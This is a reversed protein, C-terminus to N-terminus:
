YPRLSHAAGMEGTRENRQIDAPLMTAPDLTAFAAAGGGGWRRKFQKIHMLTMSQRKYPVM